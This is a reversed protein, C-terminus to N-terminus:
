SAALFSGISKDLNVTEVCVLVWFHMPDEETNRPYLPLKQICESVILRLARAYHNPSDCLRTVAGQMFNVLLFYLLLGEVDRHYLSAKLGLAFRLASEDQQFPGFVQFNRFM